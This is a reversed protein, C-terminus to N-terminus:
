QRDGQNSLIREVQAGVNYVKTLLSPQLLRMIPIPSIHTDYRIMGLSISTVNLQTFPIHIVTMWYATIFILDYEYFLADERIKFPV